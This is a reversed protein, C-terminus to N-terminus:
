YQIKKNELSNKWLGNMVKKYVLNITCENRIDDTITCRLVTTDLLIILIYIRTPIYCYIKM